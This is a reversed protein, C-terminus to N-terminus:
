HDQVDVWLRSHVLRYYISPIYFHYPVIWMKLKRSMLRKLYGTFVPITLLTVELTTLSM